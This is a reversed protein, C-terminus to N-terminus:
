KCINRGDINMDSLLVEGKDKWKVWCTEGIGKKNSCWEDAM